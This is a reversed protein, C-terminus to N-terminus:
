GCSCHGESLGAVPSTPSTRPGGSNYCLWPCLGTLSLASEQPRVTERDFTPAIAPAQKVASYASFASSNLIETSEASEATLVAGYLFVTPLRQVRGLRKPPPVRGAAPHSEAEKRFRPAVAPRAPRLHHVQHRHRRRHAGGDM